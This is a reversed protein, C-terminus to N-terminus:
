TMFLVIKKEFRFNQGGEGCEYSLNGVCSNVFDKMHAREIATWLDRDTFRQLPDLNSRLSGSFIM